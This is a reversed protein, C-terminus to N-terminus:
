GSPILFKNKAKAWFEYNEFRLLNISVPSLEINIEKINKFESSFGDGAIVLGDNSHSVIKIAESEPLLLSSTFARYATSSIPAIPTLQINSLRPDMIAGGLSYNYGTSGASTAALIGDGSFTEIFQNGIYIDIHVPKPLVSKVTIENLFKAKFVRKSEDERECNFIVNDGDIFDTNRFEQVENDASDGAKDVVISAQLCQLAQVSYRGQVYAEIFDDLEGISIEQFFGLGGTNIGVINQTPFGLSHVSRLFTGDGGICIILKTDKTYCSNVDVGLSNFKERLLGECRKSDEHDNRVIFVNNM